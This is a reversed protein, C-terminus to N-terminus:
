ASPRGTSAGHGITVLAVFREAEDDALDGFPPAGRRVMSEALEIQRIFVEVPGNSTKLEGQL